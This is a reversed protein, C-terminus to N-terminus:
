YRRIYQPYGTFNDNVGNYGAQNDDGCVQNPNSSKSRYSTVMDKFLPIEDKKLKQITLAVQNKNVKVIDTGQDSVKLVSDLALANLMKRILLDYDYLKYMKKIIAIAEIPLDSGDTKTLEKSVPDLVFDELLLVNIDGLMGRIWYVIAPISTDTPQGNEMWIM